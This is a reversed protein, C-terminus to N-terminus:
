RAQSRSQPLPEADDKQVVSNSAAQFSAKSITAVVISSPASFAASWGAAQIRL